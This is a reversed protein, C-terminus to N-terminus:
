FYGKGGVGIVAGAGFGFTPATIGESGVSAGLPTGPLGVGIDWDNGGEGVFGRANLHTGEGLDREAEIGFRSGREHCEKKNEPDLGLFAGSGVGFFAGANWQGNFLGSGGNNGFTIKAGFGDAAGITVQWLGSPDIDLVPRNLVFVYLNRLGPPDLPVRVGRSTQVTFAGITSGLPDSNLWREDYLYHKAGSPVWEAGDWRPEIMRRLRPPNRLIAQSTAVIKLKSLM